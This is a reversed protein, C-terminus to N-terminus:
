QAGGNGNRSSLDRVIWEATELTPSSVTSASAFTEDQQPSIAATEWQAPAPTIVDSASAPSQMMWLSASAVILVAAAVGSLAEAFRLLSREAQSDVSAHFRALTENSLVPAYPSSAAILTRMQELGRLERTCSSCQALHAEVDRRRSEDLEGDLHASLLIEYPCDAMKDTGQLALM